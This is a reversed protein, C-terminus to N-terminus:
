CSVIAVSSVVDVNVNPIRGTVTSVARGLSVAGDFEWCIMNEVADLDVAGDGPLTSARLQFNLPDDGVNGVAFGLPLPRLSHLSTGAGSWSDIALVLGLDCLRTIAGSVDHGARSLDEHRDASMVTPTLLTTWLRYDKAEVFVVEGAHRVVGTLAAGVEDPDVVIGGPIGVAIYVPDTSM